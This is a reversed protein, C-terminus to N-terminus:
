PQKTEKKVLFDKNAKRLIVTLQFRDLLVVKDWAPCYPLLCSLIRSTLAHAFVCHILDVDFRHTFKLLVIYDHM